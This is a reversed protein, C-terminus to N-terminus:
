LWSNNEKSELQSYLTYTQIENLSRPKTPAAYVCPHCQAPLLLLLFTGLTSFLDRPSFGSYVTFPYFPFPFAKLGSSEPHPLSHLIFGRPWYGHFCTPESFVLFYKRISRLGLLVVCLTGRQFSCQLPECGSYPEDESDSDQLQPQERWLCAALYLVHFCKSLFEGLFTNWVNNSTKM